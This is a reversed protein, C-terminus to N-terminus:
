EFLVSLFLPEYNECEASVECWGVSYALVRHEECRWDFYVYLCSFGFIGFCGRLFCQM